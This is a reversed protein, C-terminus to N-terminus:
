GSHTKRTCKLGIDYIPEQFNGLLYQEPYPTIPKYNLSSVIQRALKIAHYEDFALYDSLGSLKSHMEAGGLTEDDVIENTAMKM